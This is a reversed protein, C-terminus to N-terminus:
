GAYCNPCFAQNSQFAKDDRKKLIILSHRFLFKTCFLVFFISSFLEIMVQPLKYGRNTKGNQFPLYKGSEVM